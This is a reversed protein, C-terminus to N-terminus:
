KKFDKYGRCFRSSLKAGISYTSLIYKLLLSLSLGTECATQILFIGSFELCNGSISFLPVNTRLKTGDNPLNNEKGRPGKEKDELEDRKTCTPLTCVKFFYKLLLPIIRIFACNRLVFFNSLQFAHSAIIEPFCQWETDM